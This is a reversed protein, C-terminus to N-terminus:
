GSARRAFKKPVLSEMPLRLLWCVLFYTVGGVGMIALLQIAAALHISRVGIPLRAVAFCAATMVATAVAMKWLEPWLESLPLGVRRALLVTMVTTQILFSVATGVAMASEGLHTWLLPIEVVLNIVLNIAAWILPTRTNHLAYYGRNLIQQVSFAWIVSSYIATSRATLLAQHANFQKGEFVLRVVPSAVLVMGISAPLGIFLSAKIGRALSARFATLDVDLADGSMRPFMATALAIGFVGLPFQYLFQAVDLRSLAGMEMPLRYSLGFFHGIPNGDSQPAMMLSIQKDLVVGLQLVGLGLAVPVTKRLMTRLSPTWIRTPIRAHLGAAKLSPILMAVSVAGAVLLSVGQWWVIAHGGAETTADYTRTTIWLTGILAVNLVVATATTAVFRNHVQLIGGLLAAACVFVVYPLMLISLRVALATEPRLHAFWLTAVLITEGVVTIVILAIVQLTVAAAAFDDHLLGDPDRGKVARTYLPVFAASLAGEGLLKRFLNPMAFAYRFAALIPSDGFSQTLMRERVLGLIRSLFTIFGIIRAHKVFATASANATPTPSVATPPSDPDTVAPDLSM